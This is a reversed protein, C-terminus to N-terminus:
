SSVSAYLGFRHGCCPCSFSSGQQNVITCQDRDAADATPENHSDSEEHKEKVEEQRPPPEYRRGFRRTEKLAVEIFDLAVQERRERDATEQALRRLRLAAEPMAIQLALMDALRTLFESDTIPEDRLDSM